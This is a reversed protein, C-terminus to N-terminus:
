SGVGQPFLAMRGANAFLGGVGQALQQQSQGQQQFQQLMANNAFQMQLRREAEADGLGLLTSPPALTTLTASTNAPPTVGFMRAVATTGGLEDIVTRADKM